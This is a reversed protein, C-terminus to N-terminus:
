YQGAGVAMRAKDNAGKFGRESTDVEIDDSQVVTFNGFPKQNCQNLSRDVQSTHEYRQRLQQVQLKQARTM